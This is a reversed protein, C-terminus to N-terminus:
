SAAAMEAGFTAGIGLEYISQIVCCLNHALVKCLVENGQATATKSRIREGFKSKIMSFTTEVNSRKHYHALFEDRKFRFYHYMENWIRSDTRATTNSKCPIYARGGHAIAAALNKRSLYAKDASVEMVKFGSAATKDVLPKFYPADNAYPHTVEASTIINTKVGCMVHVKVWSHKEMERGYKADYWRSFQGTAFGSSDVAFDVEVDKLPLSSLKILEHLYPTLAESEFYRAISNYHPLEALHGRKHAERLDSAFRRGSLTTYVKFVLSYIMDALPIRPRGNTQIPPEVTACLQYLLHQFQSKEHTQAANYATWDQRYTVRKVKVTETVDTVTTQGNEVKVTRSRRQITFEVAFIHKCKAKRFEYDRCTCRPTERATDVTYQEKSNQSPVLWLKGQRTLKQNAAIEQGKQERPNDM